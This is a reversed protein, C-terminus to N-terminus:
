RRAPRPPPIPLPYSRLRRPRLPCCTRYTYAPYLGRWGCMYPEKAAPPQPPTSCSTLLMPEGLHLKSLASSNSKAKHSFQLSSLNIYFVDETSDNCLGLISITKHVVIGIQVHFTRSGKAGSSGYELHLIDSRADFTMLVLADTVPTCAFSEKSISLPLFFSGDRNVM